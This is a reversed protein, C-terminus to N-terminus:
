KRRHKDRIVRMEYMKQDALDIYEDLDTMGEKVPLVVWGYSCGVTYPNSHSKNYADIARELKASFADPERSETDIAAFLLFEDGGLRVAKSGEPAANKLESSVVGIAEDGAVHGFTDNLYKLGNLDAVCVFLDKGNKKAEDIVLESYYKLGKRNYCGTQQDTMNEEFLKDYKDQLKKLIARDEAERALEATKREHIDSIMFICDNGETSDEATTNCMIIESWYYKRDSHRIRCEMSIHVHDGLRQVYNEKTTFIRFEDREKPHINKKLSKCLVEFSDRKEDGDSGTPINELERNHDLLEYQGSSDDVLVIMQFLSRISNNISANIKM